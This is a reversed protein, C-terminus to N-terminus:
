QHGGYPSDIVYLWRGDSQRRLVDATRGEINIPSGDADNGRLAWSSSLLALGDVKVASIDRPAFIADLALFASFVERIADLGAVSQGDEGIWISDAEYLSMMDDLNKAKFAEAWAILVDEPRRTGPERGRSV